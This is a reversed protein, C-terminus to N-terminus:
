ESCIGLLTGDPDRIMAYVGGPFPTADHVVKGGLAVAATLAGDIDAVPCFIRVGNGFHAEDDERLLGGVEHGKAFMAIPGNEDSTQRAIKWGLVGEYWPRAAAISRVPIEIHVVPANPM